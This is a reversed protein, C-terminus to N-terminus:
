HRSITVFTATGVGDTGTALYLRVEHLAEGSYVEVLLQRFAIIQKSAIHDTLCIDSLMYNPHFAKELLQENLLSPQKCRIM